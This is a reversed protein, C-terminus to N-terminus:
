RYRFPDTAIREDLFQQGAANLGANRELQGQALRNINSRRSRIRQSFDAADHYTEALDNVYAITKLDQFPVRNDLLGLDYAYEASFGPLLARWSFGVRNPKLDNIHDVLNSTCNNSISHYFEPDSYLKNAREMVSVFLERSQEASAITPYVYVDDDRHRTRLRILDREDAVVYTLEFQNGFGLLASYKEGIESRVEVSVGLYSGDALGFSLMTHALAATTPFPTVIFDVSQIDNLRITRDFYDVVFDDETVYNLNRINQIRITGNDIVASPTVALEPSWQRVNSPSLRDTLTNIQLPKCGAFLCLSVVLLYSVFETISFKM